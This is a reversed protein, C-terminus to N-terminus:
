PYQRAVHLLNLLTVTTDTQQLVVVYNAHVVLELTGPQRGMRRPFNPDALHDVQQHIRREMADAANLNDQAIFLVVDEVDQLFQGTKIVRYAM